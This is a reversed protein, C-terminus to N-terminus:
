ISETHNVRATDSTKSDLYKKFYVPRLHRNKSLARLLELDGEILARKKRRSWKKIQKETSLADYRKSFELYFVLEIPHRKCTYAPGEGRYHYKVRTLLDNTYGIYYSEDSCKLIYIYFKSEKEKM